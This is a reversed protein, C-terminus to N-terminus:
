RSLNRTEDRLIERFTRNSDAILTEVLGLNKYLQAQQSPDIGKILRLRFDKSPGIIDVRVDAKPVPLGKHDALAEWLRACANMAIKYLEEPEKAAQVHPGLAEPEPTKPVEPLRDILRDFGGKNDQVKKMFQRYSKWGLINQGDTYPATLWEPWYTEITNESWGLGDDSMTNCWDKMIRNRIRQQAEIDRELDKESKDPYWDKKLAECFEKIALAATSALVKRYRTYLFDYNPTKGSQSKKEQEQVSYEKM